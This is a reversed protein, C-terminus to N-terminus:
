AILQLDTDLAEEKRLDEVEDRWKLKQEGRKRKGQQM